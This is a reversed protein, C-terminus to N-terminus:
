EYLEAGGTHCDSCLSYEDLDDFDEPHVFALGENYNVDVDDINEGQALIVHCQNCTTFLTEGDDSEMDETHCRFCGPSVRHGINDPHASWKAKMEPFITREYIRQVEEISAKLEASQNSTTEPYEERYFEMLDSEIGALAELTTAYETDLAEVARLKIFPLDSSISGQELARNLTAVPAPFQHAPRNHCDLCDMTRMPLKAREEEDLEIEANNYETSSGDERTMRVWAIEQREPDVAVYEVKSAILMHYHIGAGKEFISDQGGIKVLMRIRHPSNEEDSLFYSRVIEKYGIFDKRWHCEECTERAPRLNHIPTPIPRAFSGVTVAYAQRIGSLKSRFYYGAGTGVHCEVCAVQAHPSSQYAVWEPGMVSHCLEGCFTASETAEYTKYTGTAVLLAIVIASTLLTLAMSLHSRKTPDWRFESLLSPKEGSRRRRRERLMGVPTVLFGAVVFLTSVLYLISSYPAPGHAGLELVFLILGTFFGFLVLSLGVLSLPNLYYGSGGLRKPDFM